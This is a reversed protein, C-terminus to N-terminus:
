SSEKVTYINAMRKAEINIDMQTMEKKQEREPLEPQAIEGSANPTFKQVTEEGYATTVFTELAEVKTNAAKLKNESDRKENTLTTVTETLTTVSNELAKYAEQDTELTIVKADLNSIKNNLESVTEQLITAESELTEIKAKSVAGEASATIFEAKSNALQITTKVLAVEMALSNRETEETPNKNELEALCTNLQDLSMDSYNTMKINKIISNKSMQNYRKQLYKFADQEDGMKDALGVKVIDKGQFVKGSLVGEGTANPRGIKIASLFSENLPDLIETQLPSTNGELAQYYSENKDQSKRARVIIEKVGLDELYKDYNYMTIMTGICGAQSSNGKVFVYPCGAVMFMGASCAMDGILGVIPKNYKQEFERLAKFVMEPAFASGGPSHMRYLVGKVNQNSGAANIEKVTDTAGKNCWGSDRTIVGETSITVFSDEPVNSLQKLSHIEYMGSVPDLAPVKNQSLKKFEKRAIKLESISSSEGKLIKAVMPLYAKGHIESMFWPSQLEHILRLSM